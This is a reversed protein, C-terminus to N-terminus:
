CADAVVGEGLLQLHKELRQLAEEMQPRHVVDFCAFSPLPKMGLYRQVRHLHSLVEDLSEGEFFQDPDGFAEAPANWTTSFMYRKAVLLGGAGYRSSSKFFTGHAYVEDMYTKLLGPISFWYIPTQYIVIDAKLFKRREEEVDYGEQLISVAVKNAPSLVEVMRETLTRNLRGESDRHSQHGNIILINM